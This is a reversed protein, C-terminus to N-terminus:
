SADSVGVRAALRLALVPDNSAAPLLPDYAARILAAIEPRLIVTGSPARALPSQTRFAEPGWLLILQAAQALAVEDAPMASLSNDLRLFLFAARIAGDEEFRFHRYQNAGKAQLEPVLKALGPVLRDIDPVALLEDWDRMFFIMCNAGQEPDADALEHGTLTVMAQLAGKFLRLTEEEVGFLVPAIPRRWRALRFGGQGDGLLHEVEAADIM